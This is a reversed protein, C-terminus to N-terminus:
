KFHWIMGKHKPKKWLTLRYWLGRFPNTKRMLARDLAMLYEAVQKREEESIALNSYLSKEFIPMVKSLSLPAIELNDARRAFDALLEGEFLKFKRMQMLRLVMYYAKKTGQTPDGRKARNLQGHHFFRIGFLIGVALLIWLTIQIVLRVVQNGSDINLADMITETIDPEEEEPESPPPLVNTYRVYDEDPVYEVEAETNYEEEKVGSQVELLHYNREEGFGPTPEFSLWGMGDFYVEVWAHYNRDRLDATYYNVDTGEELAEDSWEPQVYYGTVLRAPYGLERVMAVMSSAFLTCYGSKEKNQNLFYEMYDYADGPTGDSRNVRFRTATYTYNERLYREIAQVKQLRGYYGSTIERSRGGLIESLKEPVDRYNRYVFENYEKERSMYPDGDGYQDRYAIYQSWASEFQALYFGSGLTPASVRFSYSRDTPNDNHILLTDGERELDEYESLPMTTTCGGPLGLYDSVKYEPYITVLNTRYGEDESFHNDLGAALPDGSPAVMCLYNYFQTYECFDYSVSSSYDALFREDPISWGDEDFNVTTRYRLYIPDSNDSTVKAVELDRWAPMLLGVSEDEDMYGAVNLQKEYSNRFIINMAYTSYEDLKERFTDMQLIPRTYIMTATAVTVLMMAVAVIMGFKGNSAAFAFREETTLIQKKKKRGQNKHGKGKKEAKKPILRKQARKVRRHHVRGMQQVVNQGYCGILAALFVSFAMYHPVIGYYFLPVLGIIPVVFAVMIPIRKFLALAYFLAAILAVLVLSVVLYRNLISPSDVYNSFGKPLQDLYASYGEQSGLLYIIYNLTISLSRGLYQFMKVTIPYALLLIAALGGCVGFFVRKYWAFVIMLAFCLGGILIVLIPSISIDLATTNCFLYGCLGFFFLFIELWVGLRNGRKEMQVNPNVLIPKEKKKIQM